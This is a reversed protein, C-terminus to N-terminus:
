KVYPPLEKNLFNKDCQEVYHLADQVGELYVKESSVIAEKLFNICKKKDLNKDAEIVEILAAIEDEKNVKSYIWDKIRM